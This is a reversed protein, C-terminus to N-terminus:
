TGQLFLKKLYHKLDKEHITPKSTKLTEIKRINNDICIVNQGLSSLAVSSVLGVYGAGIFTINM